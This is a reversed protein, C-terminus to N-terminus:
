DLGYWGKYKLLMRKSFLYSYESILLSLIESCVKDVLNEEDEYFRIFKVDSYVLSNVYRLYYEKDYPNETEILIVYEPYTITQNIEEITDRHIHEGQYAYSSFVSRDSIIIKDTDITNLLRMRQLAYKMALYVNKEKETKLYPPTQIETEAIYNIEPLDNEKVFRNLIPKIKKIITTKGVEDVGEIAIYM